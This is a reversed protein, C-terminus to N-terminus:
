FGGLILAAGAIALVAIALVLAACTIVTLPHFPRDPQPPWFPNRDAAPERV